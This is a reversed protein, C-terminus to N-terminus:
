FTMAGCLARALVAKIMEARKSRHAGGSYAEADGSQAAPVSVCINVM